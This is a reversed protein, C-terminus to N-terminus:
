LNVTLELSKVPRVEANNDFSYYLGTLLQTAGTGYSKIHVIGHECLFYSGVLIDAFKPRKVKPEKVFTITRHRASAVCATIRADVDRVHHKEAM